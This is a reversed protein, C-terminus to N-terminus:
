FLIFLMSVAKRIEMFLNTHTHTHTHTFPSLPANCNYDTIKKTVTLPSHLYIAHPLTQLIYSQARHDHDNKYHKSRKKLLFTGYM